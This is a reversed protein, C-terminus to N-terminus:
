SVFLMYALMCVIFLFSAVLILAIAAILFDKFRTGSALPPEGAHGNRSERDDQKQQYQYILLSGIILVFVFLILYRPGTLNKLFQLLQTISQMISIAQDLRPRGPRM